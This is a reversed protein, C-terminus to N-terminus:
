LTPTATGMQIVNDFQILGHVKVSGGLISGETCTYEKIFAPLM